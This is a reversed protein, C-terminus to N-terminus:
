AAAEQTPVCRPSWGPSPTRGTPCRPCGACACPWTTSGRTPRGPRRAPRTSTPPPSPSWGSPTSAPRPWCPGSSGWGPPRGRNTVHFIGPPPRPWRSSQRPWTPPSRRRATSTTSSASSARRRALRLATRVMNAGHAGCVWSTRVITSGPGASASGALKRPATSRPPGAPGMRPLPPRPHRRLCLRDLRLGHPRGVARGGRGHPPHRHRQRRLRRRPRVRLRGGGHLRRRPARARAPVRRRDHLVADRDDVGM